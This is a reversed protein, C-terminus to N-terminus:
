PASASLASVLAGYRTVYGLAPLRYEDRDILTRGFRGRRSVHIQHIPTAAIKWADVDELIQRSGWSLALSRPDAAALDAAKADLLLLRAAPLGREVLLLALTLGVPGAGVIAIDVDTAM